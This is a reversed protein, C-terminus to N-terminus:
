FSYTRPASTTGNGEVFGVKRWNNTILQEYDMTKREVEFGHNNTETATSWQLRVGAGCREATFSALEVPLGTENVWGVSSLTGDMDNATGDQTITGSGEDLKWYGILGYENGTLETSDYQRLQSQTRAIKWLRVEDIYGSYPYVETDDHYKGIYLDSYNDYVIQGTHAMSAATDGNVYIVMRAGDYTCAVHIWQDLGPILASNLEAANNVDALGFGVYYPNSGGAMWMAYGGVNQSTWWINGIISAYALANSPKIWAELTVSDTIAHLNFRGMSIYSSELGYFSACQVTQAQLVYPPILLLLMTVVFYKKLIAM